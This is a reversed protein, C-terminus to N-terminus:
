EYKDTEFRVLDAVINDEMLTESAYEQKTFQTYKTRPCIIPYVVKSIAQRPGHASAPMATIAKSIGTLRVQAHKRKLFLSQHLPLQWSQM